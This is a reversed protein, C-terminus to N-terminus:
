MRGESGQDQTRDILQIVNVPGFNFSPKFRWEMPFEDFQAFASHSPEMTFHVNIQNFRIWIRWFDQILEKNIEEKQSNQGEVDEYIEQTKQILEEDLAAFWDTEM